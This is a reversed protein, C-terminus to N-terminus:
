VQCLETKAASKRKLILVYFMEITLIINGNEQFNVILFTNKQTHCSWNSKCLQYGRLRHVDM